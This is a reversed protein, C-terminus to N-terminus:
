ELIVELEETGLAPSNGSTTREWRPDCPHPLVLVDFRSLMEETLPGATNREVVFDRASLADAARQYSAGAPDEPQIEAARVRSCSWSESFSCSFFRNWRRKWDAVSRSSVGLSIRLAFRSTARM